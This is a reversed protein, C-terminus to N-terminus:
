NLSEKEYAIRYQKGLKTRGTFMAKYITLANVNINFARQQLYAYMYVFITEWKM